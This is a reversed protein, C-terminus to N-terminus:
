KAASDPRAWAFQVQATAGNQDKLTYSMTTGIRVGPVLEGILQTFPVGTQRRMRGAKLLEGKHTLVITPITAPLLEPGAASFAEPLKRKAIVLAANMDIAEITAGDPTRVSHESGALKRSPEDARRPWAYHLILVRRTSTPTSNGAADMGATPTSDDVTMFGVEGVQNVDISLRSAINAALSSMVTSEDPTMPALSQTIEQLSLREVHERAISGDDALLITLRNVNGESMPQLLEPHREKVLQQVRARSRTADYGDPLTTIRLMVDARVRRGDPLPESKQWGGQLERLAGAKMDPVTSRLPEFAADFDADTTHRVATGLLTGSESRAIAVAFWGELEPGTTLEPHRDAAAQLLQDVAGSRAAYYEASPPPLLPLPDNADVPAQEPAAIEATPVEAITVTSESVVPAPRTEMGIDVQPSVDTVASTGRIFYTLMGAAAAVIVFSGVLALRRGRASATVRVPAAAALTRCRMAFDAPMPPIPQEALQAHAAWRPACECCCRAHQEAAQKENATLSSFRQTDIIRAIDQCNM